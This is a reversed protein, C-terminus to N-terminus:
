LVFRQWSNWRQRHIVITHTYVARGSNNGKPKLPKTKINLTFFRARQQKLKEQPSEKLSEGSLIHNYFTKPKAERRANQNLVPIGSLQQLTKLVARRPPLKPANQCESISGVLLKLKCQLPIFPNGNSNEHSCIEPLTSSDVTTKSLNSMGSSSQSRAFQDKITSVCRPEVSWRQRNEKLCTQEISELSHRVILYTSNNEKEFSAIFDSLSISM